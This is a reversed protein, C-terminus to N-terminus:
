STMDSFHQNLKHDIASLIEWDDKKIDNKDISDPVTGGHNQIMLITTKIHVRKRTFLFDKENDTFAKELNDAIMEDYSKQQESL